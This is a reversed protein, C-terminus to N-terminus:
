GHHPQHTYIAYGRMDPFLQDIHPDNIVQKPTGRCCVSQNLCIVESTAAHVWHQSHSVMVVACNKEATIREILEYLRPTRTPDVGQEIEDLLLVHPQRALARALLVHRMEGGSLSTIPQDYLVEYDVLALYERAQDANGVLHAATMPLLRHAQFSQPVFGIILDTRQTLTGADPKTIGALMHLLTTKGGGNPGIITMMKGPHITLSVDRILWQEQARRGIGQANLIPAPM